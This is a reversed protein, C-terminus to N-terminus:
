PINIHTYLPTLLPLYKPCCQVPGMDLGEARGPLKKGQVKVNDEDSARTVQRTRKRAGSTYGQKRKDLTDPSPRLQTYTTAGLPARLMSRAATHM